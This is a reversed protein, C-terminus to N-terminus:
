NESFYLYLLICFVFPQVLAVLLELLILPLQILFSINLSLSALLSLILHGATLNAALRVRLTIPRILQRIIEILVILPLLWIPTGIPTFHEIKRFFFSLIQIYFVSFWILFGLSFTFIIHATLSFVYSWLSILNIISLFLFLSLLWIKIGLSIFDIKPLLIILITNKYKTFVFFLNNWNILPFFLFCFFSLFIILDFNLIFPDFSVFPRSM